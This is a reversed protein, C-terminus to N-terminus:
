PKGASNSAARAGRWSRGLDAVAEYSPNGDNSHRSGVLMRVGIGATSGAAIDNMQAGLIASRGLELGLDSAAQLIM